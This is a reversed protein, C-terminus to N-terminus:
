ITLHEISNLKHIVSFGDHVEIISVSCNDIKFNWHYNYSNSILHSIICRIVGAHTCILITKDENEKIISDICSAIRNHFKILGEGNPYKYDFGLKIMNNFEYSHSEKIEKFTKGEFNGFNMEKLEDTTNIDLKKQKALEKITDIARSSPSSYINDINYDGLYGMTKQSQILGLNSLKSDIHGSLRLKNNDDTEGHRVLIIKVM